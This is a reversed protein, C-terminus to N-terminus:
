MVYCCNPVTFDATRWYLGWYVLLTRLVGTFDATRWYLGCYALLTRLIGTFDATRWYLGCYVLLTLLTHVQEVSHALSTVVPHLPSPSFVTECVGHREGATGRGYREALSKSQTKGLQNVCHPRTQNVCVIANGQWTVFIGKQFRGRLAVAPDRFPSPMPVAHSRCPIHSNANATWLRCTPWRGANPKDRSGRGTGSLKNGAAYRDWICHGTHFLAANTISSSFSIIKTCPCSHKHLKCCLSQSLTTLSLEQFSIAPSSRACSLSSEPLLYWQRLLAHPVAHSRCPIHSDARLWQLIYSSSSHQTNSYWTTTSLSFACETSVYLIYLLKINVSHKPLLHCYLWTLTM